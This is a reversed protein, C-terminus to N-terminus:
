NVYLSALCIKSVSQSPLIAPENHDFESLPDLLPANHHSDSLVDWQVNFQDETTHQMPTNKHTNLLFNFYSFLSVFSADRRTKRKISQMRPAGQVLV